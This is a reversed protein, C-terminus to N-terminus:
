KDLLKKRTKKEEKVEKRRKDCKKTLALCLQLTKKASIKDNTTPM